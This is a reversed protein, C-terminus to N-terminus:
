ERREEGRAGAKQSHSGLVSSGNRQAPTHFTHVHQSESAM